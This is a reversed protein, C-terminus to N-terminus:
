IDTFKLPFQSVIRTSGLGLDLDFKINSSWRGNLLLMIVAILSSLTVHMCSVRDLTEMIVFTTLLGM